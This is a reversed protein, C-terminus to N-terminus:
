NNGALVPLLAVSQFEESSFKRRVSTLRNSNRSRKLHLCMTKICLRLDAERKGSLRALEDPWPSDSNLLRNALYLASCAILHQNFESM